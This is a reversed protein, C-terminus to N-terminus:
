KRRKLFKEIDKRPIMELFEDVPLGSLLERRQEAPLGALFERQQAVPLGALLERRERASLLALWELREQTSLEKFREKAFDRRFDQMTYPMLTGEREYGYFLQQLLTSTDTSRQRYHRVGYGVGEARASFLHLPANHAARALQGAVIVRIVNSGRRCDYVGDQVPELAVENALNHPYSSAIAYLRFAEGPLLPQRSPSVLKRYAVYHGTLEL